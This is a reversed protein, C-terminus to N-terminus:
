EGKHTHTRARVGYNGPTHKHIIYNGTSTHETSTVPIATLGPKHKQSPPAVFTATLLITCLTPVINGM